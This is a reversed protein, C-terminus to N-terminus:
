GQGLANALETTPVMNGAQVQQALADEQMPQVKMGALNQVGGLTAIWEFMKPMSYGQRLEPDKQVTMFLEKWVDLMAVKDIPLTGDSIPYTFDGVVMEPSIRVSEGKKGVVMDFFDEDLNQQYNLTMQEALDVIAQASILRAHAALRSAGAEGSVRIETATKRGGADQLGRVNDTVSSLMDAMRSIVQMDGTHRGTVDMVPLQYVANRVDQGYVSRKLRILKGPEPNKMDQMEVMSPDVVFMNNLATRVNLIHSNIFWSITDQMPGLYDALGPQGFGYGLAYPESVAVPHMGHDLDLPEAQLIQKKNAITFIWKELRTSTGLGLKSPVINVTGQDIQVFDNAFSSSGGTTGPRADGDSVLGRSSEASSSDGSREVGRPIASTWKLLGETEMQTLDLRSEDTRWFVFEGKRNVESMPVRPDPFFMFPDQAFAETGQFVKRMERRKQWASPAAGFLMMSEAAAPNRTWVTRMATKTKWATRWVGAGYLECDQLFQFFHKVLRTNEVNYQLMTEMNRVSEQAAPNPSSLAFMPKRACFVQVGYTVITSITAWSYPVVIETVKPPKGSNNLDKLIQEYEPLDIYAQVRKENAKWRPHFKRMREESFNLRSVLHKLVREHLESEPRLRAIVPEGDDLAVQPPSEDESSTDELFSM